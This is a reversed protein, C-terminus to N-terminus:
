HKHLVQLENFGLLSEVPIRNILHPLLNLLTLAHSFASM